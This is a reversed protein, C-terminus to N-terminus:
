KAFLRTVGVCGSWGTPGSVPSDSGHGTDYLGHDRLELEALCARQSSKGSSICYSYRKQCDTDCDSLKPVASGPVLLVVSLLLIKSRM